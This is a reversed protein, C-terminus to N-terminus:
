SPYRRTPNFRTRLIGTDEAAVADDAREEGTGSVALARAARLPLGPAPVKQRFKFVCM